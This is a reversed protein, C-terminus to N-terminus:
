SITANLYLGQLDSTDVASIMYTTTVGTSAQAQNNDTMTCPQSGNVFNIFVGNRYINYGQLNPDTSATWNLVNDFEYFNGYNNTVQNISLGTPSSVLTRVGTAAQIYSEHTLTDFHEWVAVTNVTTGTLSMACAPKTNNTGPTSVQFPGTYFNSVPGSINTESSQINSHTGDSSSYVLLLESNSVIAIDLEIQIPNNSLITHAATLDNGVVKVTNEINFQNGTTSMTWAVYCNGANDFQCKIRLDKPNRMEVDSVQVPLNWSTAGSILQAGILVVNIYDTHYTGGLDSRFWVAISNGKFDVTVKPYNHNHGANIVQLLYVPTSFASGLSTSTSAMIQDFGSIFAHWVVTTVGNGIAISPNDSLPITFTTVYSWAAGFPKNITMINGAQSWAVVVNGSADVAMVPQTAGTSTSLTTLTGWSGSTYNNFKIVTNEEWVAYINANADIALNLSRSNQGFTSLQQPMGWSGGYPLYSTTVIGNYYIIFTQSSATISQTTTLTTTNVFTVIDCTLGNNYIITGGVMDYTFTTGSGTVTTGSQSATGTYTSKELWLATANANSDIVVKPQFANPNSIAAPLNWTLSTM